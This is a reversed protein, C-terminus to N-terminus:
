EKRFENTKGVILSAVRSPDAPRSETAAGRPGQVAESEDQEVSQGRIGPPMLLGALLPLTFCVRSPM